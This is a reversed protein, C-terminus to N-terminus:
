PPCMLDRRDKEPPLNMSMLHGRLVSPFKELHKFINLEHELWTLVVSLPTMFHSDLSLLVEGMGNTETIGRGRPPTTMSLEANFLTPFRRKTSLFENFGFDGLNKQFERGAWWQL